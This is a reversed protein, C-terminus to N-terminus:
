LEPCGRGLERSSQQRRYWQISYQKGDADSWQLWTRPGTGLVTATPLDAIVGPSLGLIQTYNRTSLPLANIARENVLGGLTSSELETIDSNSSVQVNTTAGAVALTV